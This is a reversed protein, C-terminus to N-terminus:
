PRRYLTIVDNEKIKADVRILPIFLQTLQIIVILFIIFKTKLINNREM